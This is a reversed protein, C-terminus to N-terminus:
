RTDPPAEGERPRHDISRIEHTHHFYEFPGCQRCDFYDRRDLPRPRNLASLRYVLPRDCTPCHLQPAPMEPHSTFLRKSKISM